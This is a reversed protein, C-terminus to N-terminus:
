NIIKAHNIILLLFIVVGIFYIIIKIAFSYGALNIENGCNECKYIKIGKIIDNSYRLFPFIIILGLICIALFAWTLWGLIPALLILGFICIALFIWTLCGFCGTGEATAVTNITEVRIEKSGCMPCKM